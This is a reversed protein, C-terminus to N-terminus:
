EEGPKGCSEPDGPSLAQSESESVPTWEGFAEVEVKCRGKSTWKENANYGWDLYKSGGGGVTTILFRNALHGFYRARMGPREQDGGSPDVPIWGVKPLYVEVWRHYVDDYSADDGRIVISGVYRAPLGAARCMSIYVFSYESCSGNGRELVTPAINWGGSLEYYMHDIVYTYIKRAIWYPNTEDGVAEKVARTIASNAMSFKTDDILYMDTIDKPIDELTGVMEPVVLYNNSFLRVTVNMTITRFDAAAINEYEFHAVKQGWQDELIEDPEPDFDAPSLLEQNDRNEPIALFVDATVVTDPGFNRIQHVFEVHETKEDYRELISRDSAVIRYISDNQYDVNWITEGDWALGWAHPGPSKVSLIVDGEHTVMYLRDDVRDAVWLYKGDYALGTSVRSPAPITTITTGDEVSISLLEDSGDDAIWLNEGDWTLGTPRSVPCFISREVIRSDPNIAQFVGSEADACWLLRGDWALGRPVYGPTRISDIVAGNQIDIVYIMDTLRDAMFLTDGACALGQPCKSVLPFSVMVDGTDSQVAGASVICLILM